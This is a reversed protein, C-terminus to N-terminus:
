ALGLLSGLQFVLVAMIWGLLLTYGVAFATWAWSGTESKITGITAICPIYILTMVMFAYSSLPTWNLAIIERLGGEGVGYIVGLTSVVVEKALIGFLLSVAAEWSGFGAPGLLPAILEGMRGLISDRGAFEVGPPLNALVWIFVVAAFILTGAKRLFSRGREWMHLFTSKLTPVRYPPLEMIFHSTEGRFLFRKFIMGMLIALVLGLLYLSFIILGQHASFFVGAFLVYVPLRASCSILPNILITLLRESRNELTRTAMIAPVNCGFAIIMPIFSKGHLGLTHMFRDMIYAARAMYGSNELLSIAFFLLFINPIFVLVSGVGAVIGDTILSQALPPLATSQLYSGLLGSFWEFFLEIGETLPEGIKFTFQFVAWMSLLFIPIGLYRNTVVKDIKDALSIRDDLTQGRTVVERCLGSIFGYRRDTILSEIEEGYFDELQKVSKNRQALLPELPLHRGLIELIKEDGELLKVALWRPNYKEVLRSCALIKQELLSIEAEIKKGYDIQLPAANEKHALELAKSVLDKIGQNRTAVTPIAATQLLRSLKDVDIDIKKSVLEDYINLAIVAKVGMELLQVTLYLNRELNTADVINIVVEPRELLIYDRAIAEDQSYAGLSYTGPLDVVRIMQGQALHFGEKKEVTVGPWNGVHQRSGTLSNFITTKGSNPNGALAIVIGDTNKVSSLEM